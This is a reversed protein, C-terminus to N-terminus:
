IIKTRCCLISKEIDFNKKLHIISLNFPSVEYNTSKSPKLIPATEDLLNEIDKFKFVKPNESSVPRGIMKEVKKRWFM